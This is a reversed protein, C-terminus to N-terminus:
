CVENSSLSKKFLFCGVLLLLLLLWVYLNSKFYRALLDTFAINAALGCDFFRERITAFFATRELRLLYHGCFLAFSTLTATAFVFGTSIAKRKDCKWLRIIEPLAFGVNAVYGTWEVYPNIFAMPYILCKPRNKGVIAYQYWFIIQLLLTVQMISHTWYVVGQGHLIEPAWIYTLGAILSLLDKYKKDKHVLAILYMLLVASVALLLNNWIYLSFEAVPLQTIKLFLWAAFFGAASFSTYYYNGESDPLCAGWPIYKDDAAGLSVIPLFMHQSVPTERYCEVTLLTHWTADSNYYNISDSRFRFCMAIVVLSLILLYKLRAPFRRKVRNRRGIASSM